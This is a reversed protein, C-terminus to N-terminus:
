PVLVVRPQLWDDDREAVAVLEGDALLAVPSEDTEDAPLPRGHRVLDRESADLSRPHLHGVAGASPLLDTEGSEFRALPVADAVDWRGIATRRLARLHAGCGLGDGLDRALARVYTGSGVDAAFDVDAGRRGTLVFRNVVVPAPELSVMEGRRARRHAPRGAVKKASFTPPTQLYHGTLRRMAQELQEDPVDRGSDSTAIVTGSLDDTETRVGLRLTGTYQKSLGVVYPMLRTARGALLPLLGTAFPDLTGGHGVRRTALGRRVIDVVDHSTVGAPKDVLLFGDSM